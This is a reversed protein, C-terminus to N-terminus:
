AARTTWMDNGYGPSRVPASRLALEEFFEMHFNAVVATVLSGMAAGKTQEYFVVNYSFYTSRLCLDLLEAIRELSLPTRKVLNVDKLLRERITDVAEDIPVNTFLSVIDFSVLMEDEALCVDKMM